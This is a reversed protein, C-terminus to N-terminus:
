RSRITDFVAVHARCHRLAQLLYRGVMNESVGLKRGIEAHSLGDMRNLLLATRPKSPLELLANALHRLRERDILRVEMSPSADAVSSLLAEDRILPANIRGEKRAIDIAINSAIRLIYAQRDNLRGPERELRALRIWTEQLADEALERSGTRRQLIRSLETWRDLYFAILDSRLERGAGTFTM